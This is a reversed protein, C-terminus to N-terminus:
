MEKRGLLADSSATFLLHCSSAFNWKNAVVSHIYRIYFSYCASTTAFTRSIHLKHTRCSESSASISAVVQTSSKAASLKAASLKAASLKAASLKASSLKASSLKASSLKASSLKASSPNAIPIDAISLAATSPWDL